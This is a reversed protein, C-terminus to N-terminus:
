GGKFRDCFREVGAVARFSGETVAPTAIDESKGSFVDGGQMVPLCENQIDHILINHKEFRFGFLFNGLHFSRTIAPSFHCCILTSSIIRRPTGVYAPEM